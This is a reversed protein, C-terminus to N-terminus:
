QLIVDVGRENFIDVVVSFFSSRAAVTVDGMSYMRTGTVTGTATNEVLEEDPLYLTVTGPDSQLLLNGGRRSSVCRTPRNIM